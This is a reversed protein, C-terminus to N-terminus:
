HCVFGVLKAIPGDKSVLELVVEALSGLALLGAVITRGWKIKAKSKGPRFEFTFSPRDSDGNNPPESDCDDNGLQDIRRQLDDDAM